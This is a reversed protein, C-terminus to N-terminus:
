HYTYSPMTVIHTYFYVRQQKVLMITIYIICLYCHLTKDQAKYYAARYDMTFSKHNTISPMWDVVPDPSLLCTADVETAFQLRTFFYIHIVLVAQIINVLRLNDHLCGFHVTDHDAIAPLLWCNLYFLM